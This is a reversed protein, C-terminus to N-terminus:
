SKDLHPVRKAPIRGELDVRPKGNNQVQARFGWAASYARGELDWYDIVMTFQTGARQYNPAEFELPVTAGVATDRIRGFDPGVITNGGPYYGDEWQKQASTLDRDLLFSKLGTATGNGVNTIHVHFTRSDRFGAKEFRFDPKAFAERQQEWQQRQVKAQKQMELVSFLSFIAAALIGVASISQAVAATVHAREPFLYISVGFSILLAILSLLLFIHVKRSPHNDM